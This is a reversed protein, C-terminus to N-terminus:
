IFQRYFLLKRNMWETLWKNQMLNNLYDTNVSYKTESMISVIPSILFVFVHICFGLCSWPTCLGTTYLSVSLNLVFINFVIWLKGRGRGESSSGKNANMTHQIKLPSFLTITFQFLKFPTFDDEYLLTQVMELFSMFSSLSFSPIICHPLFLHMNSIQFM